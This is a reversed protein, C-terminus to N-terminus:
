PLIMFMGLIFLFLSLPSDVFHHLGAVAAGESNGVV